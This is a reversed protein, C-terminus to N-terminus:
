NIGFLEDFEDDTITPPPGGGIPEERITPLPTPAFATQTSRTKKDVPKATWIIVVVALATSVGLFAFAITAIPPSLTFLSFISTLIVLLARRLTIIEIGRMIAVAIGGLNGIVSIARMAMIPCATKVAAYILIAHMVLSVVGLLGSMPDRYIPM